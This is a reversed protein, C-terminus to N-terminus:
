IKINSAYKKYVHWFTVGSQVRAVAFSCIIFKLFRILKSVRSFQGILFLSIMQCNNLNSNSSKVKNSYSACM